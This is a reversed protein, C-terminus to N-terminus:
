GSLIGKGPTEVRGAMITKLSVNGQVKIPLHSYTPSLDMYTLHTVNLHCSPKMSVKEQYYNNLTTEAKLDNYGAQIGGWVVCGSNKDETSHEYTFDLFRHINMESAFAYITMSHIMLDGLRRRYIMGQRDVFHLFKRVQPMHFFDIKAVFFNNYVGCMELEITRKPKPSNKSKTWLKWIRQTVQMEYSCLRYGYYYDNKKMFDFINYQISSHILSDEDFRMIYEYHCSIGGQSSQQEQQNSNDNNNKDYHNALDAFYQWIDIAFWHMMQRYGESFLPYAYWDFPNDDIHWHPRKWYKTGALNVFQVMDRFETGFKTEMVDLDTENFDSTHFIIIDTNKRHNDNISLYNKNLLDLSKLLMGYSDRGYTSHRKQALYVIANRKCTSSTISLTTANNNKNGKIIMGDFDPEQQQQQQQQPPDNSTAHIHEINTIHDTSSTGLVKRALIEFENPSMKDPDEWNVSHYHLSPNLYIAAESVASNGHLLLQCKSMAVIDVLVESNTRHHNELIHIPWKGTSRVVYPGQSKIMSKVDQPFKQEIIELVRHSDTAVYISTGGARVYSKFYEKLKTAPFKNRHKDGGKDSNRFHAALCPRSDDSTTTTTPNVENARDIIYPRFKYYRQMLEHGRIRMPEMWESLSVNNPNWLADPVDDYRWPKISRPHWSLLGPTIMSSNLSIIPKGICSKDDGPIFDSVPYFYSTWINSGSVNRRRNISTATAVLGDPYPFSLDGSVFTKTSIQWNGHSEDITVGDAIRHYEEDYIYSSDNHLFIWPKLNNRDAFDLQNLISVFFGAGASMKDGVYEIHLIGDVDDCARHSPQQPKSLPSTTVAATVSDKENKWWGSTRRKMTLETANAGKLVQGIFHGYETANLHDPDELNVSTYHLQQVNIWISSETVASFGHILSQCKSLALIEILIETNTRHHSGIDFVAQTDSSRVINDGMSRITKQVNQPWREKIHDMVKTSDTALYVHRGGAQLFAEVFPLFEDTQIQRRGAAKDSQRIHVGLCPNVMSCGPNVSGAQERIYPKFRIYKTLVKNAMIRQPELWEMIPIHPKTIYDPLYQYRWCKPAWPAFGHVGPTVQYLDMTVLPKNACSRDGPYFDSVPEFYDSWVGNGDFHFQHPTLRQHREALGPYADKIHGGPRRIYSIHAGKMMQFTVGPGQGHVLPDYIIHSVNNLYVWPVFNNQEAWIIQGIIFQFFITGAAGGIDGKEIHYVGRRGECAHHTPQRIQQQQGQKSAIEGQRNGKLQNNSNKVVAHVDSPHITITTTEIPLAIKQHGWFNFVIVIFITGIITTKWKDGIVVRRKQQRRRQNSKKKQKEKKQKEKQQRQKTRREQSSSTDHDSAASTTTTIATTANTIAKKKKPNRKRSSAMCIYVTTLEQITSTTHCM